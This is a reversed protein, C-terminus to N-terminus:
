PQVKQLAKHAEALLQQEAQPLPAEITCGAALRHGGGGFARAVEAVDVLDRGRLSIRVKDGVQRFLVAIKVGDISRLHNIIGDTDGDGAGVHQFDDTTIHAWVLAGEESRQLSALARGLIAVSAFPHSEYVSSAIPAPEAGCDVLEAAIRLTRGRTNAYRFSGTDTMLAVYLNIAVERTIPLGMLQLLTFVLEGTAAATADVVVIKGFRETGTHHDIEITCPVRCVGTAVSGMRKVGDCDLAVAADFPTDPVEQRFSDWGPMFRYARPAEDQCVVTVTKGAQRLALGLALASGMTDGDPNIHCALLVNQAAQLAEAAAVMAEQTM